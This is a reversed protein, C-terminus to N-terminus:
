IQLHPAGSRQASSNTSPGAISAETQPSRLRCTQLVSGSYGIEAVSENGPHTPQASRITPRRRHRRPGPLGCSRGLIGYPFHRGAGGLRRRRPLAARRPRAVVVTELSLHACPLDRDLAGQRRQSLAGSRPTPHAPGNDTLVARVPSGARRRSAAHPSSAAPPCARRAFDSRGQASGFGLARCSHSIRPAAPRGGGFIRPRGPRPVPGM